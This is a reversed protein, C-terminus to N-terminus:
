LYKLIWKDLDNKIFEVDVREINEETLGLIYESETADMLDTIYPVNANVVIEYVYKGKVVLYMNRFMNGTDLFNWRDGMNKPYGRPDSHKEPKTRFGTYIGLLRGQADIGKEFLQNESNLDVIDDAYYLLIRKTENPLGNIVTKM